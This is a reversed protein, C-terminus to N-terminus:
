PDGIGGTVGPTAPAPLLHAALALGIRRHVTASPHPDFRGAVFEAHPLDLALSSLDLHAVGDGALRAPMAGWVDPARGPLLVVLPRIGQRVALNAFRRIYAYSEAVHREFLRDPRYGAARYRAQVWLARVLYLLHVSRVVDRVMTTRLWPENRHVLYGVDDVGPTRALRLDSPILALVAVDPEVDPVRHELTAAMERVSYASVGFNFVRVRVTPLARDLEDELVQVFVDETRPVGEGFTVSDGVVAIRLEGATKRALPEGGRLTRLGLADTDIVARGRARARVLNPKHVYPIDASGDFRRYVPDYLHREAFGSWRVGLELLVVAVLALYALYGLIRTPTGITM